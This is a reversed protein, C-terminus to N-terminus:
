GGRFPIGRRSKEMADISTHNPLIDNELMSVGLRVM